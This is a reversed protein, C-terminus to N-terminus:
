VFLGQESEFAPLAMQRNGFNFYRKCALSNSDRRHIHDVSRARMVDRRTGRARKRSNKSSTQQRAHEIDCGGEDSPNRLANRRHSDELSNRAPKETRLREFFPYRGWQASGQM